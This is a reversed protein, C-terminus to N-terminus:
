SLASYSQVSWPVTSRFRSQRTNIGEGQERECGRHQPEAGAAFGSCLTQFAVWGRRPVAVRGQQVGFGKSFGTSGIPQHWTLTRKKRKKNFSRETQCMECILFLIKLLILANKYVM